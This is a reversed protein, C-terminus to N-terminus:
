AVKFVSVERAMLDINKRNKESIRNITTLVTNIQDVDEFMENIEEAIEKTVSKLYKNQLAAKYGGDQIESSEDKVQRTIENLQNVVEQSQKCNENQEKIGNNINEEVTSSLQVAGSAQQEVYEKLRKIGDTIDEIIEDTQNVSLNQDILRNKVIKLSNIIQSIVVTTKSMSGSLENGTESLLATQQKITIILNKIKRITLNCYHSMDNIEDNGEEPLHQSLNGNGESIDKLMDTVNIIPKTIIGFVIFIFVATILLAIVSLMVTYGTINKIDKLFHSEHVGILISWNHSSNGIQFPKMIYIIKKNQKPEYFANMFHKGTQMARFMEQRSDGLETDVDLMRKGIREPVFHAIITGNGSYMAMVAIENNTNITNEVIRQIPEIVLFCGLGGVIKNTHNNTIPVTIKVIFTNKGKIKVITPNDVHDKHANPGSIHAIVSDIDGCTRGAIKNTEKFYAMAYQGTPSSGTKGIYFSDMDDLANPKWVTYMAVMQPETKLAAQMMDNYRDRREEAQISEYNGMLNALTHLTRSYSDERSKWYEVRQSALYELSQISKYYSIGSVQRLLLITIGTLMVAIVAILWISLSIRIKM